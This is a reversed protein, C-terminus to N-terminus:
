GGAMSRITSTMIDEDVDEITVPGTRERRAPPASGISTPSAVAGLANKARQEHTKAKVLREARKANTARAWDRLDSAILAEVQRHKSLPIRGNERLPELMLALRAAVEEPDDIEPNERMIADIGPYVVQEFFQQGQQEMKSSNMEDRLRQAEAKARTAEREPSKEQTFRQHVADFYDPDTLLREIAAERQELEAYVSEVEQAAEEQSRQLAQEREHNYVGFQAFEVVRDLPERRIKGNAKFELLMKPPTVPTEGDEGFVQFKAPPQEKDEKKDEAKPEDGEPKAKPEPPMADGEDDVLPENDQQETPDDGLADDLAQMIISKDPPVFGEESIGETVAAENSM